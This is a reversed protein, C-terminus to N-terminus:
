SLAFVVFIEVLQLRRDGGSWRAWKRGRSKRRGWGVDSIRRGRGRDVIGIREVESGDCGARTAIGVDGKDCVGGVRVAGL